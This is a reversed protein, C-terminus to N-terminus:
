GLILKKMELAERLVPAADPTWIIKETEEGTIAKGVSAPVKLVLNGARGFPEELTKYADKPNIGVDCEGIIPVTIWSPDYGPLEEALWDGTNDMVERMIGSVLPVEEAYAVSTWIDDHVLNTVEATLGESKLRKMIRYTSFVTLDAASSQIPTNQCRRLDKSIAMRLKQFRGSNKLNEWKETKMKHQYYSWDRLAELPRVFGFASSIWAEVAGYSHTLKCWTEVQPYADALMQNFEACEELTLPEGTVPNKVGNSMLLEWLGKDGQGYVKGFLAQKCISRQSKNGKDAADKFFHKQTNFHPDGGEKFVKILSEDCSFCALIRVELGSYDRTVMWGDKFRSNYLRKVNGDRPIAGVNPHKTSLRSTETGSPKFQSHLRKDAWVYKGEIIPDLFSTIFKDAKRWELLYKAAEHQSAFEALAGEDVSVNGTETKRNTELGLFEIFFMRVQAVSGWNVSPMQGIKWAKHQATSKGCRPGLFDKRFKIVSEHQELKQQWTERETVCQDNIKSVLEHDISQGTIEISTCVRQHIRRGHEAYELLSYTKTKGGAVSGTARVFYGGYGSAGLERMKAKIKKFIPWLSLTDYAAYQVLIEWPIDLYSDVNYDNRFQDLAEWYEPIEPAFKRVLDELGSLRKEDPNILYNWIMTDAYYGGMALGLAASISIEDFQVNHGVKKIKESKLVKALVPLVESLWLKPWESADKGTQKTFEDFSSPYDPTAVMLPVKQAPHYFSFLGVKYNAAFPTVGNSEIDWFLPLHLNDFVPGFWDLITKEGWGVVFDIPKIASRKYSGDKLARSIQIVRDDFEGRQSESIRISEVDRLAFVPTKKQYLLARGEMRRVDMRKLISHGAVPGAAIIAVPKAEDIRPAIFANFCRKIENKNLKKLGVGDVNPRCCVGPHYWIKTIGQKKFRSILTMADENSGIGSEDAEKSIVDGVITLYGPEPPLGEGMEDTESNVWLGSSFPSKAGKFFRCKICVKDEPSPQTM